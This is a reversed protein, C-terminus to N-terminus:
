RLPVTGSRGHLLLLLATAAVPLPSFAAASRAMRPLSPPLGPPVLRQAPPVARRAGGAEKGPHPAHPPSPGRGVGEEGGGGCGGRTPVAWHPPPLAPSREPRSRLRPLGPDTVTHGDTRGGSGKGKEGGEERERELAVAAGGRGFRVGRCRCSMGVGQPGTLVGSPVVAM